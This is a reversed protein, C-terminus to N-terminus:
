MVGLVHFVAGANLFHENKLIQAPPTQVPQMSLESMIRGGSQGQAASEDSIMAPTSASVFYSANRSRDRIDVQEPEALADLPEAPAPTTIFLAHLMMSTRRRSDSDSKQTRWSHLKVCKEM